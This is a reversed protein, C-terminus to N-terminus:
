EPKETSAIDRVPECGRRWDRRAESRAAAGPWAEECARFFAGRAANKVAGDDAGRQVAIAHLPAIAAFVRVRGRLLV